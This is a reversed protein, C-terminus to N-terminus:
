GSASLVALRQTLGPSRFYYIDRGARGDLLCSSDQQFDHNPYIGANHFNTIFTIRGESEYVSTEGLRSVCRRKRLVINVM